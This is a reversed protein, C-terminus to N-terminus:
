RPEQGRWVELAKAPAMPPMFLFGQAEHCGWSQLFRYQEATEVGVAIVKLEMAQALAVSARVIRGAEADIPAALVLSRDIKLARVPNQGLRHLNSAATGFQDIQVGFGMAALERLTQSAGDGQLTLAAEALELELHLPLAPDICVLDGLLRLFGPDCFQSTSVNVAIPVTVGSEHWALSQRAATRLIWEGLRPGFASKEAQEVLAAAGESGEARTRRLLAEYGTVEGDALRVRPQYYLTFEDRELARRYADFTAHIPTVRRTAEAHPVAAPEPPTTARRVGASQPAAPAAPIARQSGRESTMQLAADDTHAPSGKPPDADGARRRRWAWGAALVVAALLAMVGGPASAADANPAHMSALLLVSVAFLLALSVIGLRSM